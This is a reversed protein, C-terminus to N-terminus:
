HLKYLYSHTKLGNGGEKRGEKGTMGYHQGDKLSHSHSLFLNDCVVCFTIEKGALFGPIFNLEPGHYFLEAPEEWLVTSFSM